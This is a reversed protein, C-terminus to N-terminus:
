SETGDTALGNGNGAELYQQPEKQKFLPQTIATNNPQDTPPTDCDAAPLDPTRYDNRSFGARNLGAVIKELAQSFVASATLVYSMNLPAHGHPRIHPQRLIRELIQEVDIASSRDALTALVYAFQCDWGEKLANVTIIFRVQCDDALLDIGKLEDVNATKIKVRIAINTSKMAHMFKILREVVFADALPFSIPIFFTAPASLDDIIIWNISSDKKMTVIAISSAKISTPKNRFVNLLTEPFLNPSM